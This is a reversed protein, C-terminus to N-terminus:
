PLPAGSPYTIQGSIEGAPFNVSHVVFHTDNTALANLQDPTMVWGIPVSYTGATLGDGGEFEVIIPGPVAITGTHIHGGDANGTLGTFTITGSIEGTDVNVVINGTGTAPTDVPPVVEPGSLTKTIAIVPNIIQGRIEGGPNAVSHVVFYLNDTALAVLQDSTLVAGAPVSFVGSLAGAGGQLELIIPGLPTGAAGQHIHAVTALSSLGSFSLTGAVARSIPDIALNAVGTASTTVPPVMQSGSLSTVIPIGVTFASQWLYLGDFSGVPTVGLFLTYRGPPLISTPIEPVLTVNFPAPQFNARWPVLGQSVPILGGAETFVLLEPSLTPALLALYIDVPGSFPLLGIEVAVANAGEAYAGFAIPVAQAPNLDTIPAETPLSNFAQVGTPVMMTDGGSVPTTVTVTNSNSSINGAADQARLSYNYTTAPTVNTDLFATAAVTAIQVGNRFLLYGTVGV